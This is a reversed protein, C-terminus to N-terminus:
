QNIRTKGEHHKNSNFLNRHPDCRKIKIKENIASCKFSHQQTDLQMPCQFPCPVAGRSGRFNEGFQSMRTRFLFVDQKTKMSLKPNKFYQQLSMEPYYINDMKSHSEQLTQLMTLCYEMSKVQVYNKFSYESKSKIFQFDEKIKFDRLDKRCQTIWDNKVPNSDQANLFRSLMESEDNTLIYHLYNIRRKKFIVGLPVIGLELFFAEHSTTM